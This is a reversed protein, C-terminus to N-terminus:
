GAPSPEPPNELPPNPPPEPTVHPLMAGAPPTQIPAAPYLLNGLPSYRGAFFTLVYAQFFYVIPSSIIGLMVLVFFILVLTGTIAAAIMAPSHLLQPTAIGVAVVAVIVPVLLILLIFFQVIAMAIGVAIALVVKIGVYGAYDGKAAKLAVWIRRLAAMVPLNEIAMIPVAFDKAFLNILALVIAYIMVLPLLVMVALAILGIHSRPDRFIGSSWAAVGPLGILLGYGCLSIIMFCIQFFFYRLGHAQWRKWGERLRYRGSAVGDFLVFRLVSGVYLHVIVLAFLGVILVTLMFAIRGTSLGLNHLLDMGSAAAFHQQPQQKVAKILDTLGSPNCGGTSAFEGTALALVGFRWWRSWQFPRFMFMKTREVAPGIADVASIPKTDM